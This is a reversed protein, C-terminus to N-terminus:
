EHHFDGITLQAVAEAVAAVCQAQEVCGPARHIGQRPAVVTRHEIGGYRVHRRTMGDCAPIGVEIGIRRSVPGIRKWGIRATAAQQGGRSGGDCGGRGMGHGWCGGGGALGRRRARGRQRRARCRCGLPCWARQADAFHEVIARHGAGFTVLEDFEEVRTITGNVQSVIAQPVFLRGAATLPHVPQRHPPEQSRPLTRDHGFVRRRVAATKSNPGVELHADAAGTIRVAGFHGVQCTVAGPSAALPGKGVGTVLDDNEIGLIPEHICESVLVTVSLTQSQHPLGTGARRQRQLAHTAGVGIVEVGVQAARGGARAPDLRPRLDYHRQGGPM